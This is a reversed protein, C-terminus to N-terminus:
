SMGTRAPHIQDDSRTRSCTKNGTGQKRMFRVPLDQERNVARVGHSRIVYGLREFFGVSNVTARLTFESFGASSARRESESVLRRGIGMGGFMPHVFVSRIRATDANDCVPTWGATGILKNDLWGVCLNEGALKDGYEPSYVHDVFSQIEQRSLFSNAAHRFASAHIYRIDSMDDPALPRFEVADAVAPGSSANM